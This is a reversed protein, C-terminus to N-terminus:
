RATLDLCINIHKCAANELNKANRLLTARGTEIYFNIILPRPEAKKEELMRCFKM